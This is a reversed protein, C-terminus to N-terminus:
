LLNSKLKKFKERIASRELVINDPMEIGLEIKRILYWDTPLLEDFQMNNLDERTPAYKSLANHYEENEEETEFYYYNEGDFSRGFETNPISEPSANNDKIIAKIKIM